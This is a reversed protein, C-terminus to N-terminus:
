VGYVMNVFCFCFQWLKTFTNLIFFIFYTCQMLTRINQIIYYISSINLQLVKVAELRKQKFRCAKSMLTLCNDAMQRRVEEGRLSKWTPHLCVCIKLNRWFYKIPILDLSHSPWEFVNVTNHILWKHQRSQTMTKNSPLGEALDSTRFTSSQTRTLFIEINQHM